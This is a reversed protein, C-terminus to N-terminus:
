ARPSGATSHQMTVALAHRTVGLSYATMCLKGTHVRRVSQLFRKRPNGLSSTFTGDRSLRGHEGQLLAEFPLRM